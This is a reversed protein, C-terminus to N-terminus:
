ENAGNRETLSGLSRDKKESTFLGAYDNVFNEFKSPTRQTLREFDDTVVSREGLLVAQYHEIMAEACWSSIGANLMAQRAATEEVATFSINRGVAKSLIEAMEAHTLAAPGTITFERNAHRENTLAEVGAAAVDRADIMSISGSGSPCYFEDRERIDRGHATILNQMFANPRLTVYSIGSWEVLQEAHRYRKGLDSPNAGGAGIVSQKVVLEVGARKAEDVLNRTMDAMYEAAPTILYMRQIGVMGKRVSDVDMFDMRVQEVGPLHLREDKEPSHVAARVSIGKDSLLRVIHHGVSGTAGTVLFKGDLHFTKFMM